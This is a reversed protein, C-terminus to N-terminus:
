GRPGKEFPWAPMCVNRPQGFLRVYRQRDDHDGGGDGDRQHRDEAQRDARALGEDPRDAPTPSAVSEMCHPPRLLTTIQQTLAGIPANRMLATSIFTSLQSKPRIGM